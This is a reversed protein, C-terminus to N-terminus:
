NISLNNMTHKYRIKQSVSCRNYGRNLTRISDYIFLPLEKQLLKQLIACLFHIAAPPPLKFSYLSESNGHHAIVCLPFVSAACQFNLRSASRCTKVVLRGTVGRLPTFLALASGLTHTNELYKLNLEFTERDNETKMM